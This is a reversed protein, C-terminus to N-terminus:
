TEEIPFTVSLASELAKRSHTNSNAIGLLIAEVIAVRPHPQYSKEANAYHLATTLFASLMEFLDHDIPRNNWNKSWAHASWNALLRRQPESLSLEDGTFRATNANQSM